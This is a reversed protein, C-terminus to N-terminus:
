EAADTDGGGLNSGEDTREATQPIESHGAVKRTNEDSRSASPDHIHASSYKDLRGYENPPSRKRALKDRASLKSQYFQGDRISWGYRPEDNSTSNSTSNKRDQYRSFPSLSRSVSRQPREDRRTIRSSVPEYTNPLRHRDGYNPSGRNGGRDRSNPSRTRRRDPSRARRGRPSRPRRPPSRSPSRNPRGRGTRPPVYSDFERRTPPERYRDRSRNRPSRSRRRNFSPDNLTRGPGRQGRRERDRLDDLERGRAMDQERQQRAAEAAKEAELKEQMLELKKAELLEKPVGQPNEQASLLLLWLDKCFKPTDKDLFGTLQIQMSKIDPIDKAELLSYCFEIIVDDENALIENIRGAIWKKIVEINVKKLNVKHNFEPPFKTQRLLKSDVAEGM